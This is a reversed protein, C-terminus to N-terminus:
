AVERLMDIFARLSPPMHHNRPFYLCLGPSPPCWDELVTVLRGDGLAARAYPEPVYAIGLGAIAAEVMLASNDLTLAGPVDVAVEQDRKRFEWRYRKGSPLRQRICHHQVLMDPVNPAPHHELYVPAAMALFRIDPGLRVAVMDKPVSEELRVGADFGLEVIDILRGEAVLDLAVNPYRALFGPVVTHLLLRLAVDNGNIRLTGTLHGQRGAIDELAGDLQSLLPVLRGALQEGAETPSVSRTTRHLLQAGLSDELGRMAHSLSSPTVGTLDAARRFSRHEVVAMFARLDALTPKKM